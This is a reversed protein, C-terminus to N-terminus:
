SSHLLFYYGAYLGAEVTVGGAQVTGVFTDFHTIVAHHVTNLITQITCLQAIQAGTETSRIGIMTLSKTLHASVYAVATGGFAFFVRVVVALFAGFGAAVTSSLTYGHSLQGGVKSSDCRVTKGQVAM